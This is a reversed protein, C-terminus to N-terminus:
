VMAVLHAQRLEQLRRDAQHLDDLLEVLATNAPSSASAKHRKEVDLVADWVAEGALHHMEPSDAPAGPSIEPDLCELIFESIFHPQKILFVRLGFRFLDTALPRFDQIGRLEWHRELAMGDDVADTIETMWEGADAHSAGRFDLLTALSRCLLHRSKISVDTAFLSEKEFPHTLVLAERVEEAVQEPNEVTTGESISAAHCMLCCALTSRHEQDDPTPSKRLTDIANQFSTVASPLAEPTGMSMLTHGRNMWAVAYRVVFPPHAFSDLEQLISLAEDYSRVADPLQEPNRQRTLADGRNMWAAALGWRVNQTERPLASRIAIAKDFCVVAEALSDADPAHLHAIGLNTQINAPLQLAVPHPSLTRGELTAAAKQYSDIAQSHLAPDGQERLANARVLHLSAELECAKTRDEEPLSQLLALAADAHQDSQRCSEPSGPRLSKEALLHLKAAETLAQSVSEPNM